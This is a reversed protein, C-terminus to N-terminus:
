LLVEHLRSVALNANPSKWHSQFKVSMEAAASDLQRDFKLAIHNKYCGIEHSQSMVLDQTLVEIQKTGLIGVVCCFYAPCEYIATKLKSLM